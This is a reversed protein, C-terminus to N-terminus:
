RAGESAEPLGLLAPTSLVRQYLTVNPAVLLYPLFVEGVEAAGADVLAFQAEVWDKTIRWAVRRAHELNKESRPVKKDAQLADLVGEARAPLRYFFERGTLEVKFSLASPVGFGDHEIQVARVGHSALLGVIQGATRGPSIQTTHNKIAM